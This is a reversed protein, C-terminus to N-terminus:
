GRIRSMFTILEVCVNAAQECLEVIHYMRAHMHARANLWRFGICQHM